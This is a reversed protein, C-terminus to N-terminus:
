YLRMQIPCPSADATVAGGGSEIYDPVIKDGLRYWLKKQYCAEMTPTDIEPRLDNMVEFYPPDDAGKFRPDRFWSYGIFIIDSWDPLKPTQFPQDKSNIAKLYTAL